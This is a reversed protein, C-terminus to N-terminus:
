SLGNERLFISSGQTPSLGVVSQLSPPACAYSVCNKASSPLVHIKNLPLILGHAEPCSFFRKSAFMGDHEGVTHTNDLISICEKMFNNM